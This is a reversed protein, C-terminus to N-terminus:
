TLNQYLKGGGSPAKAGIRKLAIKTAKDMAWQVMDPATRGGKYDVTNIKGGESYMLKITPFGEVGYEGACCMNLRQPQAGTATTEM